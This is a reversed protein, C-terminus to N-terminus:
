AREMARRLAADIRQAAEEQTRGPSSWTHNQDAKELFLRRQAQEPKHIMRAQVM